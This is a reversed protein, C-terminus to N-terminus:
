EVPRPGPFEAEAAQLDHVHITQRDVIARGAPRAVILVRGEGLASATPILGFHAAHRLVEGDVRCM